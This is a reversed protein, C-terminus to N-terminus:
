VSAYLDNGRFVLSHPGNLGSLVTTQRDPTVAIIRGSGQAAVYLVGNPGFAMHRPENLGRAFVSVEYGPQTQLEELRFPRSGVPPQAEVAAVLLMATVIMRM